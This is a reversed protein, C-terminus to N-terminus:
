CLEKNGMTVVKTIKLPTDKEVKAQQLKEFIVEGM